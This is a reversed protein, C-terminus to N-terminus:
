TDISMQDRGYAVHFTRELRRVFNSVSEGERQATHRFNQGALVRSGPDLREWLAQVASDYNQVQGEGLLNWEQLARGKLHGALQIVQEESSWGNWQSARHLSPLWDDLRVEPDEGTSLEVPPAKGKLPKSLTPIAPTSVRVDTDPCSLNPSVPVPLTALVPQLASQETLMQRLLAIEQDKAHM